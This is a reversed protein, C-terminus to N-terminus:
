ILRRPSIDEANLGHRGIDAPIPEGRALAAATRALAPATQIGYGGQGVCWFFGAIEADFGIVPVRDPAFTRLGAWKHTIRRIELDLVAEIRDVCIAIDLDDPQVDCAQDPTEEALSILLKGADPKFYFQEDADIVFPWERIDFGAPADVLAVTRRYPRLGLTRAGGMVAVEDAWAGAANILIPAAAPGDSLNTVWLGDRRELQEIRSHTVLMTGGARASRLFGQHLAAVDIDMADADLAAAAIQEARLLPVSSLADASPIMDVAGGLARIEAITARLRAAQDGRAVYLVQRRSLLPHECFGAPPNDFFARSAVTAARIERGGYSPAYLAASRGTAHFGPQSEAEILCVRGSRSLEYALSAGVIGAGIILFDFIKEASM